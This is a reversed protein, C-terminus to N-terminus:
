IRGRQSSEPSLIELADELIKHLEALIEEVEITQCESM